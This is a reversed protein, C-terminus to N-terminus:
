AELEKPVSELMLMEEPTQRRRTVWWRKGSVLVEPCLPRGCYNSSMTSGYAGANLIAVLDGQELYPTRRGTGFKDSSECCFGCFDAIERERNTQVVPIIDHYAHEGYMAPRVLDNMGAELIYFVKQSGGKQPMTKRYLVKTILAGFYGVRFRGIETWLKCGTPKVLEVIKPILVQFVKEDLEGPAIPSEDLTFREGPRYVIPLGGGIGFYEITEIGQERVSNLISVALKTAQIIADLSDIQSGIHFHIGIPVVGPLGHADQFISTVYEGQPQYSVAEEHAIGFQNTRLGVALNPFAAASIDPNVRCAVPIRVGNEHGIANILVLEGLSEVVFMLIGAKVGAIIDKRTKGPGTMVIKKPDMGVDRHLVRALEGMSAVDAGCGEKAMVRLFALNAWTKVPVCDLYKGKGMIGFAQRLRRTRDVIEDLLYAYFPAGVEETIQPISVRDAFLRGGRYEFGM